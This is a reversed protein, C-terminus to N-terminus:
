TQGYLIALVRHYDASAPKLQVAKEATKIGQEAIGRAPKRERQEIMVEALYSCATAARIQAEPDNPSKAAAAGTEDILKQLAPRDQRDRASELPGPAATAALCAMVLTNALRM